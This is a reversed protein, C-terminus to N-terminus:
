GYEVTSDVVGGPVGGCEDVEAKGSGVDVDRADSGLRGVFRRYTASLASRSTTFRM